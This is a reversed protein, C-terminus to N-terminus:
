LDDMDGFFDTQKKTFKIDPTHDRDLKGKTIKKGTMNMIFKVDEDEAADNLDKRMQNEFQIWEGTTNVGGDQAFINGEGGMGGNQKALVHGAHAQLYNNSLVKTSNQEDGIKYIGQYTEVGNYGKNGPDEGDEFEPAYGNAGLQVKDKSEKYVKTEIKRQLLEGGIDKVHSDISDSEISKAQAMGFSIAKGGMVDAEHELGQDDNVPVGDKMQMTPQVRGQAQQVVHWAEHPLHQEQGSAIHIDTGQAYALANLQAPQSSNYHVRVSDMSMGSMAEIGNRLNDPLGTHNPKATSEEKLQAAEFKGQLLEEEPAVQLQRTAGSMFAHLKRQAVMRPSNNMVASLKLQALIKPSTNIAKRLKRQALVEPRNDVFSSANESHMQDAALQTRKTQQQESSAPLSQKM